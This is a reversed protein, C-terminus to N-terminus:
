GTVVEIVECGRYNSLSVDAKVLRVARVIDLSNDRKYSDLYIICLGDVDLVNQFM